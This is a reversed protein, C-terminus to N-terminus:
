RGKKPHLYGGLNKHPHQQSIGPYARAVNARIASPNAAYHAERLAARAHSRDPIPFSRHPGAFQSTPIAARAAKTLKAM